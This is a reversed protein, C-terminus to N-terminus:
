LSFPKGEKIMERRIGDLIDSLYLIGTPKMGPEPALFSEEFGASEYQNNGATEPIGNHEKVLAMQEYYCETSKIAAYHIVNSINAGSLEYKKVLDPIFVNEARGNGVAANPRNLQCRIGKPISKQWILSRHEEDPFPFRLMSNFRRIFSDDINSRMNTAMIVLGNYDEIRQLLYSVEQNAYKDHADRISTRKGFIADAEDFFLIWGKDEARAFLQELNKETEGIYKSVVMSLDIRFVPRGTINGLLAATLTKGTGPPGYFLTRYGKKWRKRIGMRSTLDEQYWLWSLLMSIQEELEPNIVLDDWGLETELKRAPFSTSFEPPIAEGFIMRDLCDQSLILKGGMLPEGKGLEELWLIKKRSFAQDSHFLKQVQIRRDFNHGALMFFVTEGTPYYGRFDRGRVFGLQPYEGPKQLHKLIVEDYYHPYVHPVLAMILVWKEDNSISVNATLSKEYKKREMNRIAARHFRSGAFGVSAQGDSEEKVRDLFGDAMVSEFLRQNIEAVFRSYNESLSYGCDRWDPVVPVVVERHDNNALRNLRQSLFTTLLMIIPEDAPFINPDQENSQMSTNKIAQFPIAEEKVSEPNESKQVPTQSPYPETTSGSQRNHRARKYRGFFASLRKFCM